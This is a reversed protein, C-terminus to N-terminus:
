TEGPGCRKVAGQIFVKDRYHPLSVQYFFVRQRLAASAVDYELQSAAAAPVSGIPGAGSTDGRTDAAPLSNALSLRMGALAAAKSSLDVHLPFSGPSAPQQSPPDPFVFDPVSGALRQWDSFYRCRSPWVHLM